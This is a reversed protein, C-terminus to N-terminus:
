YLVVSVLQNILAKSAIVLFGYAGTFHRKICPHLLQAVNTCVPLLVGGVSTSLTVHIKCTQIDSSEYFCFLLGGLHAMYLWM